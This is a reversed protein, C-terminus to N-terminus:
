TRVGDNAEPAVMRKRWDHLVFTFLFRTAVSVFVWMVVGALLSRTVATTAPVGALGAVGFVVAATPISVGAGALKGLAKAGSGKPRVTDPKKVEADGVEAPLSEPEKNVRM